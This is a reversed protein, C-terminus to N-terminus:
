RHTKKEPKVPRSQAATASKTGLVLKILAANVEQLDRLHALAAVRALRRMSPPNLTKLPM